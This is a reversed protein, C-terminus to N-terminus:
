NALIIKKNIIGFNTKVKLQYMGKALPPLSFSFNEKKNFATNYICKGKVSFIEITGEHVPRTFLLTIKNAHVTYRITGTGNLANKKYHVTNTPEHVQALVAMNAVACKLFTEATEKSNVSTGMVDQQTHYYPHDKGILDDGLYIAAYGYQWFSAHDSGNAWQSSSGDVCSVGPLYSETEHLISGYEKLFESPQNRKPYLIFYFANREWENDLKKMSYIGEKSEASGIVLSVSHNVPIITSFDNEARQKSKEDLGTLLWLQGSAISFCFLIGSLFAVKKM